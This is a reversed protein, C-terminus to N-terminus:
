KYGQYITKLDDVDYELADAVEIWEKTTSDQKVEVVKEGIKKLFSEGGPTKQVTNFLKLVDGDSAANNIKNNLIRLRVYTPNNIDGEKADPDKFTEKVHRTVYVMDGAKYNDPSTPNKFKGAQELLATGEKLEVQALSTKEGFQKPFYGTWQHMAMANTVAERAEDPDMKSLDNWDLAKVGPQNKALDLLYENKLATNTKPDLFVAEYQANIEALYAPSQAMAGVNVINYSVKQTYGTPKGTISDKEVEQTVITTDDNYRANFSGDEMLGAKEFVSDSGPVEIAKNVLDVGGPKSYTSLNIDSQFVYYDKDGIKEKKVKGGPQSWKELQAAAIGGGQKNVTELYESGVPIKVTSTVINQNNEVRLSRTAIADPGYMSAPNGQINSLTLMNVTQEGNAANGSVVFGENTSDNADATFAGLQQLSGTSYSEFDTVTQAYTNRDEDSLDQDFEMKMRADIAALSKIKIQEKWQDILQGGANVDDVYGQDAASKIFDTKLKTANLVLTNKFANQTAKLKKADDREKQRRAGAAALGAGFSRGLEAGVNIQLPPLSYDGSPISYGM